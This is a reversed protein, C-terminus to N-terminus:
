KMMCNTGDCSAPMNNKMNNHMKTMKMSSCITIAILGLALLGIIYGTYKALMVGQGQNRLGWIVLAVGVGLAILEVSFALDGLFMM